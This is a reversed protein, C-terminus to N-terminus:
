QFQVGLLRGCVFTIPLVIKHFLGFPLLAFVIFIGYRELRGYHMGIKRPLLGMVLRSGDLPPIPIMNFIALILNIFISISIISNISPPLGLKLCVSLLVALVVNIAPGAVDGLSGQIAIQSGAGAGAKGLKELIRIDQNRDINCFPM